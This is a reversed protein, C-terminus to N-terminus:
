RRGSHLPRDPVAPLLDHHSGKPARAVAPHRCPTLCGARCPDQTSRDLEGAALLPHRARLPPLPSSRPVAGPSRSASSPTTAPRNSRGARPHRHRRRQSRGEPPWRGTTLLRPSVPADRRHVEIVAFAALLVAASSVAGLMRGGDLRIEARHGPVGGPVDPRSHRHHHGDSRVARGNARGNARCRTGSRARGWAPGRGVRLGPRAGIRPRGLPLDLAVGVDPHPGRGAPRRGSRRGRHGCGMYGAGRRARTRLPVPGLGPRALAPALASAALGQVARAAILVSPRHGAAAASDRPTRGVNM